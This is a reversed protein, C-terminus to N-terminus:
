RFSAASIMWRSRRSRAAQGFRRRCVAFWRYVQLVLFFSIASSSARRRRPRPSAVRIPSTSVTGGASRLRAGRRSDDELSMAKVRNTRTLSTESMSFVASMAILVIVVGVMVWDTAGFSETAPIAPWM